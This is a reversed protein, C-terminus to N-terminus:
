AGSHGIGKTSVMRGEFCNKYICLTAKIAQYTYNVSTNLISNWWCCCLPVSNISKGQYYLYVHCYFNIIDSILRFLIFYFINRLEMIIFFNLKRYYDSSHWNQKVQINHKTICQQPFHFITYVYLNYICCQFNITVIKYWPYNWCCTDAKILDFKQWYGLIFLDM